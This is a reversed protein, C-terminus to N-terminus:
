VASDKAADLQAKDITVEETAEREAGNSDPVAPKANHGNGNTQLPEKESAAEDSLKASGSSGRARSCIMHTIGRSNVAYCTLDILLLLVLLVGVVVGIVLSSALSAPASAAQAGGPATFVIVEAPEGHGVRNHARLDVRYYSEPALQSVRFSQEGPSSVVSSRREQPVEKWQGKKQKIIKYYTVQFSDIAAGNDAAPLWQLLYGDPQQSRVVLDTEERVAAPSEAEPTLIRPPQPAAIKPMLQELETSWVGLGVANEAALRFQYTQNPTLGELTYRSGAPWVQRQAEEWSQALQRYEVTYNTVPLGGDSEPAPVDFRVSTSTVEQIRAGSVTGPSTAERLAVALSESGLSNTATCAYDGYFSEDMPTVRLVSEAEADTQEMHPNGQVSAGNFSWSIAAEPVAQAHCTLSAPEGTM